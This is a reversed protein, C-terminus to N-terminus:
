GSFPSRNQIEHPAENGALTPQHPMNFQIGIPIGTKTTMNVSNNAMKASRDM